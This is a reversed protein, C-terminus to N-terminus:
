AREFITMFFPVRPFVFDGFQDCILYHCGVLVALDGDLSTWHGHLRAELLQLLVILALRLPLQDLLTSHEADRHLLEPHLIRWFWIM